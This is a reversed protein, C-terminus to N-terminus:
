NSVARRTTLPKDKRAPKFISIRSKQYRSGVNRSGLLPDGKVVVWAMYSM